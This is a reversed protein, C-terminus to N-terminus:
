CRRRRAAGAAGLGLLALLASAPEPVNTTAATQWAGQVGVDENLTSNTTDNLAFQGSANSGFEFTHVEGNVEAGFLVYANYAGAAPVPDLKAVEVWVAVLDFLSSHYSFGYEPFFYPGPGDARSLTASAASDDGCDTCVGTFTYTGNTVWPTEDPIDIGGVLYAQSSLTTVALAIPLLWRSRNFNM